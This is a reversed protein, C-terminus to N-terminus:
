RHPGPRRPRGRDATGLLRRERHDVGGAEGPGGALRLRVVRRRDPCRLRRLGRPGAPRRDARRGSRGPHGSYSHGVLVAERLDLREVEDVVDQVHTQQGAPVGQKEAPGSLTLPHAGHGAAHLRPVVEDWAWSGLWAGAVLVFETM